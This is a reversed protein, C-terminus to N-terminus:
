ENRNGSGKKIFSSIGVLSSVKAVSPIVDCPVFVPNSSGAVVSSPTKMMVFCHIRYQAEM